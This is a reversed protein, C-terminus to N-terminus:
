FKVPNRVDIHMYFVLSTTLFMVSIFGYINAGSAPNAGQLPDVGQLSFGIWSMFGGFVSIFLWVMLAQGCRRNSDFLSPDIAETSFFRERHHNILMGAAMALCLIVWSLNNTSIPDGFIWFGDATLFGVMVSGVLTLGM